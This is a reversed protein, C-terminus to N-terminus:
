SPQQVEEASSLTGGASFSQFLSAAASMAAELQKCQSRLYDIEQHLGIREIAMTDVRHELDAVRQELSTPPAPQEAM